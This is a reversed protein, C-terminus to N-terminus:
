GVGRQRAEEELEQNYLLEAKQVLDDPTMYESAPYLYDKEFADGVDYAGITEKIVEERSWEYHQELEKDIEELIRIEAMTLEDRSKGPNANNISVEWPLTAGTIESQKKILERVQENQIYNQYISITLREEDEIREIEESSLSEYEAQAKDNIEDQRIEYMLDYMRLSKKYLKRMDDTVYQIWALDDNRSTINRLREEFVKDVIGEFDKQMQKMMVSQKHVPIDLLNYVGFTRQYAEIDSGDCRRVFMNFITEYIHIAYEDDLKAHLGKRVAVLRESREDLLENIFPAESRYFVYGKHKGENDIFIDLEGELGIRKLLDVLEKRRDACYTAVSKQTIKNNDPTGYQSKYRAKLIDTLFIKEDNFNTWLGYQKGSCYEEVVKGDNINLLIVSMVKPIEVDDLLRKMQEYLPKYFLVLSIRDVDSIRLINTMMLIWNHYIGSGVMGRTAKFDFAWKGYKETEAVMDFRMRSNRGTWIELKSRSNADCELYVNEESELVGAKQLEETLIKSGIREFESALQYTKKTNGNAEFLKEITVGSNPDANEAIAVLLSEKSPGKNEKNIIRTVTSAAVGLIAAFQQATRGPGKAADVLESLKDKDFDKEPEIAEYNKYITM